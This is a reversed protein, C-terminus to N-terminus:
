LRGSGVSLDRYSTIYLRSEFAQALIIMIGAWLIKTQWYTMISFFIYFFLLNQAFYRQPSNHINIFVTKLYPHEANNRKYYKLRLKICSSFFVSVMLICFGSFGIVGNVVLQRFFENHPNEEGGTGFILNKANSTWLNFSADLVASRGFEAHLAEEIAGSFRDSMQVLQSPFLSTIIIALLGIIFLTLPIKKLIYVRTRITFMCMISACIFAMFFATIATRSQFALAAVFICILGILCLWFSAQRAKLSVLTQSFFIISFLMGIHVLNPDVYSGQYNYELLASEEPRQFALRTSPTVIYDYYNYFIYISTCVTFVFLIWRVKNIRPAIIMPVVLTIAMYNITKILEIGSWTWSDSFIFAFFSGMIMLLCGILVGDSIYKIAYPLYFLCFGFLLWMVIWDLKQGFFFVPYSGTPIIALHVVCLATIIINIYNNNNNTSLKACSPLNKM